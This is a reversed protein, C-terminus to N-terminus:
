DHGSSPVGAQDRRQQATGTRHRRLAPRHEARAVTLLDDVIDGVLNTVRPQEGAARRVDTVSTDLHEAFTQRRLHVRVTGDDDRVIRPRDPRDALRRLLDHSEQLARVATTTDNIGPSLAREAIDALQRLGFGVDQGPIREVGIEVAQAAQSVDLPRPPADGVAHVALLPMGAVVFEGPIRAVTVACDHRRAIRALQDVDVATVSGTGPAVLVDVIPGNPADDPDAPRPAWRDISRRTQAGIAAIMHSVRMLATMHHLYYLFMGTSGLVLGMSVALSLAPLRADSEDPLAALVVMAFLFTAVFTGLTAQTVRDQLFTRLVRPTYQSSALQLAVVTISFVLATFSIMATIISSLLSRAGAPGSPLYSDLPLRLRLELATLVVALLVSGVAFAAPVAWFSRWVGRLRSIVSRPQSM